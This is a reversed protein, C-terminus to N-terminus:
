ETIAYKARLKAVLDKEQKLFEDFQAVLAPNKTSSLSYGSQTNPLSKDYKLLGPSKFVETLQYNGITPSIYIADVQKITGMKVLTSFSNAETMTIAKSKIADQLPWPTFGRVTGVKKVADMGKGVADPPVMLGETVNVVPASYTITKGTRKEKNWHANDPFKADIDKGDLLANFLSPIDMPKYTITHKYKAAFADLLERAFGAYNGNETKYFPYYNIDEVGVVLTDAQAAFSWLSAAALLALRTKM